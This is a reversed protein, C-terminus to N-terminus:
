QWCSAATSTGGQVSKVGLSNIKFSGCSDTNQGSAPIPVAQIRYFTASTGTLHISYFPTGGIPVQISTTSYGLNTLSTAYANNTSYYREERSAIQLLATKAATRHGKRVYNEYSPIAVATIIALIALTIMLETLTFGRM